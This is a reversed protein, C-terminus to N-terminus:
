DNKKGRGIVPKKARRPRNRSPFLKEKDQFSLQSHVIKLMELVPSTLPYKKNFFYLRINGILKSVLVGSEEFRELQNQVTSLSIELDKAIGRPHAEGYHFIYLLINAANKSGFIKDLM